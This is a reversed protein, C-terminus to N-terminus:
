LEKNESNLGVVVKKLADVETVVLPGETQGLLRNATELFDEALVVPRVKNDAPVLKLSEAAQFSAKQAEKRAKEKNEDVKAEIRDVQDAEKHSFWTGPSLLHWEPKTPSVCGAILFVLAIFAWRRM